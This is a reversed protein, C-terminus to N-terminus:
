AEIVERLKVALESLRFPKSIAAMFGHAAYQAMVPDSNYGSIVIAKVTPDLLKLREMTEKGGMKGPITLDLMVVNYPRNFKGFAEQYKEIAQAGDAALDVEYGLHILSREIIQQVAPDDDMVLVKESHVTELESQTEEPVIVLDQLNTPLLITFTTGKGLESEAKIFGNHKTIISFSTALGLGNGSSKTTFYPDFIRSLNEPSIGIGNDGVIVAIYNLNDELPFGCYERCENSINAATVRLTGGDPMAQVANIILNNLVQSIQGQDIELPWLDTALEFNCGVNSGRLAFITAEKLINKLSAAKKIPAGGKAFTLLQQTLDRARFAATEAEELLEQVKYNKCDKTEVELRALTLNGVVATLINNFDHAIGGALLGVSELKQVKLMEQEMKRRQSVDRFVLVVGIPRTSTTDRIPAASSALNRRSGDRAVLVTNNALGVVAGTARVKDVPNPAAQLTQENIICFVEALPKGAAEKQSWGTFQAAVPNLLVIRGHIDTTIVGDGISQLTVALQEKEALLQHETRKYETVDQIVMMGAFIQGEENKVPIAHAMYVQGQHPMEFSVAKGGLAARYYPELTACSQPSLVEWITKGIFEENSFPYDRFGMGEALTYRLDQDFLVVGGNPFNRALTRYLEESKAKADKTEQLALFRSQLSINRAEITAILSKTPVVFLIVVMPLITLVIAMTILTQALNNLPVLPQYLGLVKDSLYMLSTFVIAFGSVLVTEWTKLLVVTLTIPVMFTLPFPINNGMPGYLLVVLILTDAVLLWSGLSYRRASPHSSVLFRSTLCLGVGIINGLINLLLFNQQSVLLVLLLAAISIFHTAVTILSLRQLLRNKYEYEDALKTTPLQSLPDKVDEGPSFTFTAIRSFM